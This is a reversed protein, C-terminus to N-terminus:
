SLVTAGAQILANMCRMDSHRKADDIDRIRIFEAATKSSVLIMHVSYGQLNIKNVDAGAKLLMDVCKHRCTVVAFTLATYNLYEDSMAKSVNAGSQILLNVCHDHGYQAAAMM